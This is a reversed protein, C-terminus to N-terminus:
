GPNTLWNSLGSSSWLFLGGATFGTKPGTHNFRALGYKLNIRKITARLSKAEFFTDIVERAIVAKSMEKRSEILCLFPKQDLEHRDQIKIYGFPPHMAVKRRRLHEWGKRSRLSLEEVEGQAFAARIRSFLVGDPTNLDISSEDLVELEVNNARFDQIALEWHLASRTFRDLRSVVVKDVAGARVLQMVQNYGARDGATGREIDYYIQEKTLGYLYLKTLHHELAHSLVAQEKKSVRAYGVIQM